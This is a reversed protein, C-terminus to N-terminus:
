AKSIGAIVTVPTADINDVIHPITHIFGIVHHNMLLSLKMDEIIRINRSLLAQHVRRGEARDLMSSVSITDMGIACLKPLRNTLFSAIESMFVVSSSWYEDLQRVSEMGTKILLLQTKECPQILDELCNIDILKAPLKASCDIYKIENFLWENQSYDAISKGNVIFHSPADVHTGTHNSMGIHYKNCSDGSELCEIQHYDFDQKGAYGPTENSLPHSLMIYPLQNLM